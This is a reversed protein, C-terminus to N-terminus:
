AKLIAECLEGFISLTAAAFCALNFENVDEGTGQPFPHKLLSDLNLIVFQSLHHKFLRELGSLIFGAHLIQVEM